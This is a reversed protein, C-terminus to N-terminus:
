MVLLKTVKAGDWIINWHLFLVKLGLLVTVEGALDRKSLGMLSRLISTGSYLRLILIGRATKNKLILQLNSCQITEGDYYLDRSSSLSRCTLYLM